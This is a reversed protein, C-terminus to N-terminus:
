QSIANFIEVFDEVELFKVKEDLKELASQRQKFTPEDLKMSSLLFQRSKDLANRLNKNRFRFVTKIFLVFQERNKIEKAQERAKLVVVSSEGKPKPYFCASSVTGANKCEFFYQTLISVPSYDDFGPFALLKEVFEKQFVLVALEFDHVLLKYIIPSSQSYPPLSVVKNFKPLKAKLFDEQFLQLGKKPLEQELLRCLKEDLEFGVVKSKKLLEKTLFGTGPGIELVVDEKKLEALRVLKEVLASSTVFHQANKKNPRFRYKIMLNQLEDFLVM